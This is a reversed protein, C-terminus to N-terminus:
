GGEGECINATGRIRSRVRSRGEEKGVEVELDKMQVNVSTGCTRGAERQRRIGKRTETLKM